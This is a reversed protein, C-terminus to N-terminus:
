SVYERLLSIEDWSYSPNHGRIALRFARPTLTNMVDGRQYNQYYAMRRTTLETPPLKALKEAVQQATPRQHPVQSWCEQMVEWVEDSLELKLDKSPRSPLIRRLVNIIVTAELAFEHYPIQSTLVQPLVEILWSWIKQLFASESLVEYMVLTVSYVDSEFTLRVGGEVDEMLEPAQWHMTGGTRSMMEQSTWQLIETDVM